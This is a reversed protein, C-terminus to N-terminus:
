KMTHVNENRKILYTMQLQNMRSTTDNEKKQESKTNRMQRLAESELHVDTNITKMVLLLQHCFCLVFEVASCFLSLGDAQLWLPVLCLLLM